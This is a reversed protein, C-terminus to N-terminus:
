PKRLTQNTYHSNNIKSNLSKDAARCLEEASVVGNGADVAPAIHQLPIFGNKVWKSVAQQKVHCKEALAAQTGLKDILKQVPNIM